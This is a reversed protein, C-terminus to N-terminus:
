WHLQWAIMNFVVQKFSDTIAYSKLIWGVCKFGDVLKNSM